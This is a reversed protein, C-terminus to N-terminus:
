YDGQKVWDFSEALREAVEAIDEEPAVPYWESLVERADYPGGAIYLYGGEGSDHPVHQAPDEYASLFQEVMEDTSVFEESGLWEALSM